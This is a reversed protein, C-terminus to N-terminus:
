ANIYFTMEAIYQKESKKIKSYEALYINFNEFFTVINGKLSDVWNNYIKDVDARKCIATKRIRKTDICVDFDYRGHGVPLKKQNKSTRYM